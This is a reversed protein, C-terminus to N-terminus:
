RRVAMFGIVLSVLTTVTQLTRTLVAGTDFDKAEPKQGVTITSGSIVQVTSNPLLFRRRLSRIEGSPYEVVINGKEANASFGGAASIYDGINWDQRFPV